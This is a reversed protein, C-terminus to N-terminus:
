LFSYMPLYGVERRYDAFDGPTLRRYLAFPSADFAKPLRALLARAVALEGAAASSKLKECRAVLDALTTLYRVDDIGERFGEWALTDIDLM